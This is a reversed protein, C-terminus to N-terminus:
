QRSPSCLSLPCVYVLVRYLKQQQSILAHSSSSYLDKVEKVSVGHVKLVIM